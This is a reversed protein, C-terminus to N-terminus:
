LQVRYALLEACDGAAGTRAPARDFRLVAPVADSYCFRAILRLRPRSAAAALVESTVLVEDPLRDARELDGLVEGLYVAPRASGSGRWLDLYRAARGGYLRRGEHSRAVHEALAAGPPPTRRFAWVARGNEAAVLAAMAFLLGCSRSSLSRASLALALATGLLVAVPLLHRGHGAVPLALLAWLGYGAAAVLLFVGLRRRDASPNERNGAIVLCVAPLVLLWGLRGLVGGCLARALALLRGLPQMDVFVSGGFDTFHGQAHRLTLRLLQGPGISWAFPLLWLLVTAVLAASLALLARADVLRRRAAAGYILGLALVLLPLLPPRMGLTVGAIVGAAAHEWLRAPQRTLARVALAGAFLLCGLGAGDSLTAVALGFCLPATPVLLLFLLTGFRGLMPRLLAALAGLGASLLLANATALALAPRLGLGHLGRGALVFLPYGPPQPAFRALDFREIALVFGVGDYGDAIVGQRCFFLTGLYLAAIGATAGLGFGSASPSHPGHPNL